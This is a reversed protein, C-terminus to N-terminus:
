SDNSVDINLYNFNIYMYFFVESFVFIEMKSTDFHLLM